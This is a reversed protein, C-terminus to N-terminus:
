KFNLYFVKYPFTEQLEVFWIFLTTKAEEIYTYHSM